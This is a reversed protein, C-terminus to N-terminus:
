RPKGLPEASDFYTKTLRLLDASDPYHFNVFLWRGNEFRLEPMVEKQLRGKPLRRYVEIRCTEESVVASRVIYGPDGPDGADQTNLIWDFDLGADRNRLADAEVAKVAKALQADFASRREKLALDISDVDMNRAKPVYWNYFGQVFTQCSEKTPGSKPKQASLCPCGVTILAALTLAVKSTNM